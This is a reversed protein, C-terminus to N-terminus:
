GAAKTGWTHRLDQHVWNSVGSTADLHEKNRAWGGFANGLKTAFLFGTPLAEYSNSRRSM